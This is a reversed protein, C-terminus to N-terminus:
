ANTTTTFNDLALCNLCTLPGAYLPPQQRLWAGVDNAARHTCLLCYVPMKNQLHAAIIRHTLGDRGAFVDALVVLTSLNATSPVKAHVRMGVAPLKVAPPDASM